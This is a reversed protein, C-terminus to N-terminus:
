KRGKLAAMMVMEIWASVTRREAAAAAEVRRKLAPTVRIGLQATRRVPAPQTRAM